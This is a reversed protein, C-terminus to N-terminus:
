RSAMSEQATREVYWGKEPVRKKHLEEKTEKKEVESVAVLEKVRMIQGATTPTVDHFVTSM